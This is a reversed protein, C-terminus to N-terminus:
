AVSLFYGEKNLLFRVGKLTAEFEVIYHISKM